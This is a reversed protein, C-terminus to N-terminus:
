RGRWSWKYINGDDDIWFMRYTNYSTTNGSYAGYRGISGSTVSRTSEYCVIEGGEGDDIIQTPPGWSEILDSYHHGEWSAMMENMQSENDQRTSCGGVMPLLAVAVVCGIIRM